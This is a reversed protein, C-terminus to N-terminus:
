EPNYLATEHDSNCWPPIAGSSSCIRLKNSERNEFLIEKKKRLTKGNM